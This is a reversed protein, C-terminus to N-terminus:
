GGRVGNSAFEGFADKAASMYRKSAEEPTGHHGLYVMKGNIGIQARWRKGVKTVGKFGSTNTNRMRSNASNRERTALRLNSIRNDDVKGNIHDIEGVPHEGYHLFWALRHARYYKGAVSVKIYGDKDRCESIRGGKAYRRSAGPKWSLIGTAPDYTILGYM